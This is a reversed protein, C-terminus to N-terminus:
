FIGSDSIEDVEGEDEGEDLADFVVKRYGLSSAVRLVEGHTPFSRGTQEKFHQMANMFELEDDTYQKEFTTPDIRRRREKRARREPRTREEQRAPEPAHRDLAGGNPTRRERGTRREYFLTNPPFNSFDFPKPADKTETNDDSM